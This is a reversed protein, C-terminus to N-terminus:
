KHYLIWINLSIQRFGIEKCGPKPLPRASPHPWSSPRVTDAVGVTFGYVCQFVDLSFRVGDHLNRHGFRGSDRADFLYADLHCDGHCNCLLSLVSVELFLVKGRKTLCSLAGCDSNPIATKERNEM